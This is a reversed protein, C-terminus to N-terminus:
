YRDLRDRWGAWHRHLGARRAGDRAARHKTHAPDPFQPFQTTCQVNLHHVADTGTWAICGNPSTGHAIFQPATVSTQLLGSGLASTFHVGDTSTALNLREAARTSWGLVLGTGTGALSPGANSSFQPLVTKRGPTLPSSIRIPLVNLSHNADIGTWALVVPGQPGHDVTEVIAPGHPSTDPLTTKTPFHLGDTGSRINLHHAADTGTWAIALFAFGPGAISTEPLTVKATETVTVPAAPARQAAQTPMAAGALGWVLFVPVLVNVLVNAAATDRSMRM